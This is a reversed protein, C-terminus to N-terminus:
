NKLCDIEDRLQAWDKYLVVRGPKDAFANQVYTWQSPALVNYGAAAVQAITKPKDEVVALPQLLQIAELKRDTAKAPDVFELTDYYIGHSLLNQIRDSSWKVPWATVLHIDYRRQLAALHDPIDSSVLPLFPSTAIFNDVYPQLEREPWRADFNWVAPNADFTVKHQVSFLRNWWTSFPGAFNLLVGDVDFVLCKRM